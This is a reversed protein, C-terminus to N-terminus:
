PHAIDHLAHAQLRNPTGPKLIALRGPAKYAASRCSVRVEDWERHRYHEDRAPRSGIVFQTRSMPMAVEFISNQTAKCDIDDAGVVVFRRDYFNVVDRQRSDARCEAVSTRMNHRGDNFHSIM